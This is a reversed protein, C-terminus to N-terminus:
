ARFFRRARGRGSDSIEGNKVMTTLAYTARQALNKVQEKSPSFGLKEVAANVVDVASKPQSDVLDEWFNKGTSPLTGGNGGGRAARPKRGRRGKAKLPQPLKEPLAKASESGVSNLRELAGELADVLSQYYAVGQRAHSLEVKIAAKASGLNSM